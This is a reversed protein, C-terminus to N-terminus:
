HPLPEREALPAVPSFDDTRWAVIRLGLGLSRRPGHFLAVQYRVECLATMHAGDEGQFTVELRPGPATPVTLAVLLSRATVDVATGRLLGAETGLHVTVLKKPPTPATAM